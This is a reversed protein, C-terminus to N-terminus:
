GIPHTNAALPLLECASVTHGVAKKIINRAANSDRDHQMGCNPCQWERVALTLDPNRYGCVSCDQSTHQPAVQEYSRGYWLAKYALLRNLEGWSADAMSRALCHNKLMGAINLRETIVAQNERILRTSLKHLYDQRCNRVRLHQRALKQVAKRRNQSGKMKRSIARQLRALRHQAQQLHRPNAITEGTSLTALAKIGVDIGIGDHAAIPLPAIDTEVCLSVYWGDAQQIVSARKITAGAPLPRSSRFKIKGLKPLQITSTNPHLRVGQKFAFSRYRGRRAFRPFGKGSKFFGDYAKWLRDTVEQLTQSHLCALWPTEKTL